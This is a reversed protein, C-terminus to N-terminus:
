EAMRVHPYFIRFANEGAALSVETVSQPHIVLVLLGPSHVQISGGLTKSNMIVHDLNILILASQVYSETKKNQKHACLIWKQSFM